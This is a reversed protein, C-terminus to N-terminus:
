KRVTPSSTTSNVISILAPVSKVVEDLDAICPFRLANRTRPGECKEHTVRASLTGTNM